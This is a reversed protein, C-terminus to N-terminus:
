PCQGQVRVTGRVEFPDGAINGTVRLEVTGKDRDTDCLLAILAQRSFKVMLHPTGDEDGDGLKPTPPVALPIVGELLLSAIDIDAPNYSTPLEVFTTIVRGKSKLNLTKPNIVLHGNAAEGFPTLECADGFRDGDADAQDANSVSLCNDEADPIGDGDVDPLTQAFGPSVMMLLGACLGALAWHTITVIKSHAMSKVERTLAINM